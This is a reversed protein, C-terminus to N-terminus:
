NFAKGNKEFIISVKPFILFSGVITSMQTEPEDPSPWSLRRLM